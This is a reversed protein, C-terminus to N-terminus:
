MCTNTLFLHLTHWYCNTPMIYLVTQNNFRRKMAPIRKSQTLCGELYLCGWSMWCTLIWLVTFLLVICSISDLRTLSAFTNQGSLVMFLLSSIVQLQMHFNLLVIHLSRKQENPIPKNNKKFNQKRCSSFQMRCVELTNSIKVQKMQSYFLGCTLFM